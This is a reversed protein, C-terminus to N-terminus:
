PAVIVQNRGKSKAQYLACDARGILDDPSDGARFETVGLSVTVPIREEKYVFELNEIMVRLQEAVALADNLFLNSLIVSFEEGGYRFTLDHKRLRSKLCKGIAALVKDGNLHGYRDNINKFNDLDMMIFCSAKHSSSFEKLYDDLCRMLARRNLIGTLADEEAARQIHCLEENNKELRIRLRSIRAEFDKTRHEELRRREAITKRIVGLRGIVLERLRAVNTEQTLTDEIQTVQEKLNETFTMSGDQRNCQDQLLSTLFEKETQVLERAVEFLLGTLNDRDKAVERRYDTLLTLIEQELDYLEILSLNQGLRRVAATVRTSFDSNEPLHLQGALRELLNRFRNRFEEVLEPNTQNDRGTEEHHSRDASEERPKSANQNDLGRLDTNRIAELLNDLTEDQLNEKKAELKIEDLYGNIVDSDDRKALVALTVVARRLTKNAKDNSWAQTFGATSSKEAEPAVALARACAGNLGDGDELVRQIETRGLLARQLSHKTLQQKRKSLNALEAIVEQAVLAVKETYEM